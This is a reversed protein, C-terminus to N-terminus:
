ARRKSCSAARSGSRPTAPTCAAVWATAHSCTNLTALIAHGAMRKGDLAVAEGQEFGITVQLRRAPWEARATRVLRARREGPAEWRDIEGGSMTLGLLNENITYAKQKRARRLRSSGSLSRSTPASKQTHEKQIERIPAVIETTAPAKVALDFRVQDNGM